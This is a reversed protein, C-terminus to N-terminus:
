YMCPFNVEDACDCASDIADALEVVADKYEQLADDDADDVLEYDIETDLSELEDVLWELADCCESVEEFKPTNSLNGGEMNGRWSQMEEKLEAIDSYDGLSACAEDVAARIDAPNDEEAAARLAGSVDRVVTIAEALRTARSKPKPKPVRLFLVGDRVIKRSNTREHIIIGTESKFTGIGIARAM